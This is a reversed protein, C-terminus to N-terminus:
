LEIDSIWRDFYKFNFLNDYIKREPMWYTTTYTQYSYGTSSDCMYGTENQSWPDIAYLQEEYNGSWLSGPIISLPVVSWVIGPKLPVLNGTYYPCFRTSFYHEFKKISIFLVPSITAMQLDKDETYWKYYDSHQYDSYHYIKKIRTANPKFDAYATENSGNGFFSFKISSLIPRLNDHDHDGGSNVDIDVIRTSNTYIKYNGNDYLDINM